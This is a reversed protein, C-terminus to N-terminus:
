VSTYFIAQEMENDFVSPGPDLRNLAIENERIAKQITQETLNGGGPHNWGYQAQIAKTTRINGSEDVLADIADGNISYPGADRFIRGNQYWIFKWSGLHFCIRRGRRHGTEFQKFEVHAPGDVRHKVNRDNDGHKFWTLLMSKVATSKKKDKMLTGGHFDGNDDLNISVGSCTIADPVGLDDEFASAMDQDFRDKTVTHLAELDNVHKGEATLYLLLWKDTAAYEFVTRKM